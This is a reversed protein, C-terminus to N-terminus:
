AADVYQNWTKLANEFLTLADQTMAGIRLHSPQAEFRRVYIGHAALHEFLSEANPHTILCFLPHSGLIGIKNKQLLTDRQEGLAHLTVRMSTAWADDALAQTGITIAAANVAWPGQLQALQELLAPEGLAFGLRVGALGYFKGFSRLVIVNPNTALKSAFSEGPQTDVYAEDVIIWGNPALKKAVEELQKTSTIKGDPNNPTTIVIVDVDGADALSHPTEVHHGPQQWCPAHENYTPSIVAVRSAGFLKMRLFPLWQILSQTGPAPLIDNKSVGYYHAAAEQLRQMDSPTPLAEWLTAPLEPVPYAHPNIGTSADVWRTIHPYRSRVAGLDGGHERM